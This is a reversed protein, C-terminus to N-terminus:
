DLVARGDMNRLMARRTSVLGDYMEIRQFGKNLTTSDDGKLYHEYADLLAGFMFRRDSGNHNKGSAASIKLKLVQVTPCEAAARCFDYVFEHVRAQRGVFRVLEFFAGYVAPSGAKLANKMSKGVASAEDCKTKNARYYDVVEIRNAQLGTSKHGLLSSMLPASGDEICLIIKTTMAEVNGIFDGATRKSGNDITKYAENGDDVWVCLLRQTCGSECIAMLRHQGDYLTGDTGLVITQGNDSIFKGSRMMNALDSVWQKRVRRNNDYNDKLLMKASDPDIFLWEAKSM